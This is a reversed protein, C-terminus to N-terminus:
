GGPRMIRPEVTRWFVGNYTAKWVLLLVALVLGVVARYERNQMAQALSFRRRTEDSATGGRRYRDYRDGFARRLFAEENRVAAPLTVGLYIAVIAFVVLSACAIALGVGIVTSGIYLPHAFWRYPGSATVERSKNLHGAAWIRILEGAVAVSTGLLLSTPTPAALWLVLAGAAFGIPVRRRALAEFV